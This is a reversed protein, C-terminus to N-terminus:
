RNKFTKVVRLVEENTVEVNIKINGPMSCAVTQQPYHLETLHKIWADREM